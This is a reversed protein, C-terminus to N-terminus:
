TTDRDTKNWHLIPDLRALSLQGFGPLSQEPYMRSLVDSLSLMPPLGRDIRRTFERIRGPVTFPIVGPTTPKTRKGRNDISMGRKGGVRHVPAQWATARIDNDAFPPSEPLVSAPRRSAVSCGRQPRVVERRHRWPVPEETDESAEPHHRTTTAQPPAPQETSAGPQQVNSGVALGPATSSSSAGAQAPAPEQECAKEISGTIKPTAPQHGDPPTHDRDTKTKKRDPEPPKLKLPLPERYIAPGGSTDTSNGPQAAIAEDCVPAQSAPEEALDPGDAAEWELDVTFAAAAGESKSKKDGRAPSRDAAITM